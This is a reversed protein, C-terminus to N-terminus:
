VCNLPMAPRSGAGLQIVTVPGVGPLKRIPSLTRCDFWPGTTTFNFSEPVDDASKPEFATDKFEKKLRQYAEDRNEFRIAGDPHLTPLASQVDAKQASTAERHLYVALQYQYRPLGIRGVLVVVLAAVSAIAVVGAGAAIWWALRSRAPTSPHDVPSPAALVDSSPETLEEFV